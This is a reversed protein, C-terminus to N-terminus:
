SRETLAVEYIAEVGASTTVKLGMKSYDDIFVLEVSDTGNMVLLHIIGNGANYGEKTGLKVDAM